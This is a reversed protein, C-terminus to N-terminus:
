LQLDPLVHLVVIAADLARALRDARLSPRSFDTALL